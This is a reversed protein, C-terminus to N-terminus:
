KASPTSQQFMPAQLLIDPVSFFQIQSGRIYVQATNKSSGDKGIIVVDQLQVNMNDETEILKGRYSIGNTLELTVTHGQAENLLKVPISVGMKYQEELTDLTAFL